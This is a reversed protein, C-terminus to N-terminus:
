KIYQKNAQITFTNGCDPCVIDQQGSEYNTRINKQMNDLKDQETSIDLDSISFDVDKGMSKAIIESIDGDFFGEMLDIDEIEKLEIILDDTWTAIEGVKNDIIRYQKAEQKSLEVEIVNIDTYGLEMLAKYRTHGTVIINNKDVSIYQNYGFKDISEKVKKVAVTNDRPNRWYPKVEKINIKKVKTTKM